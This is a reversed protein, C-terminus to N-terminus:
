NGARHQNLIDIYLGNRRLRDLGTNVTEIISVADPHKKSVILHLTSPPWNITLKKLTDKSDSIRNIVSQAFLDNWVVFQARDRKIMHYCNEPKPARLVPINGSEVMSRFARPISYGLARCLTLGGLESIKNASIALNDSVFVRGVTEYLPASFLFDRDRKPARFYPFTGDFQNFKTDRYGRKWHEFSIKVPYGAENFITRVIDTLMGGKPLKEDSYPAFDNGTVLEITNKAAIAPSVFTWLFLAGLISVRHSIAKM